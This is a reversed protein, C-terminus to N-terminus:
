IELEKFHKEKTIVEIEEFNNSLIDRFTELCLTKDIYEGNEGNLSNYNKSEIEIGEKKLAELLWLIKDAVEGNEIKINIEFM